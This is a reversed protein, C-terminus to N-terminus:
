RCAPVACTACWCRRMPSHRCQTQGASRTCFSQRSKHAPAPFAAVCGLPPPPCVGAYSHAWGSGIGPGRHGTHSPTRHDTWNGAPVVAIRWDPPPAPGRGVPGPVSLWSGLLTCPYHMLPAPSPVRCNWPGFDGTFSSVIKMLQFVSQYSVDCDEDDGEIWGSKKQRYHIQELASFEASFFM